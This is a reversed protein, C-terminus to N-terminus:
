TIKASTQEQSNPELFFKKISLNNVALEFNFIAIDLTLPIILMLKKNLKARKAHTINDTFCLRFFPLFVTPLRSCRLEMMGWFEYKQVEMEFQKQMKSVYKETQDCHHSAITGSGKCLCPENERPLAHM